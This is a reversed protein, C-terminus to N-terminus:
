RGDRIRLRRQVHGRESQKGGSGREGSWSWTSSLLDGAEVKRIGREAGAKVEVELRGNCECTEVASEAEKVRVGEGVAHEDEASGVRLSGSRGVELESDAVAEGGETGGKEPVVELKGGADKTGKRTVM